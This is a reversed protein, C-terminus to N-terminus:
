FQLKYNNSVNVKMNPLKEASHWYSFPQQQLSHLPLRASRRYCQTDKSAGAAHFKRWTQVTCEKM